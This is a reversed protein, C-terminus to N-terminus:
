YIFVQISGTFGCVSLHCYIQQIYQQIIQHM